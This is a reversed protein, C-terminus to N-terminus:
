FNFSSFIVRSHPRPPPTFITHGPPPPDRGWACTFMDLSSLVKYNVTHLPSLNLICTYRVMKNLCIQLKKKFCKSLGTYWACFAYDSHCQILFHDMDYGDQRICSVNIISDMSRVCLHTCIYSICLYVLATGNELQNSSCTYIIWNISIIRFNM